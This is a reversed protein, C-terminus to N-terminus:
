ARDFHPGAHFGFPLVFAIAVSFDGYEPKTQDNTMRTKRLVGSIAIVRALNNMQPVRVSVGTRM